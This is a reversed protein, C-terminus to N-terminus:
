REPRVLGRSRSGAAGPGPDSGHDSRATRDDGALLLPAVLAVATTVSAIRKAGTAPDITALGDQEPVREDTM